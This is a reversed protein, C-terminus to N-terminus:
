ICGLSSLIEGKEFLENKNNCHLKNKINELYSSVTTLGLNLDRAVKKVSHTALYIRLCNIEQPSLSVKALFSGNNFFGAEELLHIKNQIECPENYVLGKQQYFLDGKLAAFNMRNEQLDKAIVLSLKNNLDQLAKKIIHSENMLRNTIHYNEKTTAFSFACYGGNPTKEIYSFIHYCHFNIAVDYLLKDKFEQEPSANDFAFGNHINDPHVLGPDLLYYKEALAHEAWKPDTSIKFIKGNKDMNFYTGNTIGLYNALPQSLETLTKHYLKTGLFFEDALM